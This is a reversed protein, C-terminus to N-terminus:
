SKSGRGLIRDFFQKWRWKMEQCEPGPAFGLSDDSRQVSLSQLEAGTAEVNVTVFQRCGDVSAIKWPSSAKKAPGWDQMFRKMDYNPCPHATTCGWVRYADEFKSSNVLALFDSAKQKEAHDKLAFYAIIGLVLVGLLSFIIRRVIRNRHEDEVGYQQLYTGM